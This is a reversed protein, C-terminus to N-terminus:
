AHAFVRHDCERKLDSGDSEEQRTQRADVYEPLRCVSWLTKLIRISEMEARFGMCVALSAPLPACDGWDSNVHVVARHRNLNVVDWRSLGRELGSEPLQHLIM